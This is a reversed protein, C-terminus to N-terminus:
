RPGMKLTSSATTIMPSIIQNQGYMDSQAVLVQPLEVSQITAVQSPRSSIKPIPKSKVTTNRPTTMQIIALPRNESNELYQCHHSPPMEKAKAAQPINAKKLGPMPTALWPAGPPLIPLPMM